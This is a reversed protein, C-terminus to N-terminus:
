GNASKAAKFLSGIDAESLKKLEEFTADTKAKNGTGEGRLEFGDAGWVFFFYFPAAPSGEATVIVISHGDDCAYVLWDTKGFTKQLPGATCSLNSPTPAKEAASSPLAFSCGIVITLIKLACSINIGDSKSKPLRVVSVPMVITDSSM